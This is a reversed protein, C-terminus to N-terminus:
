ASYASLVSRLWPRSSSDGPSITTFSINADHALIDLEYLRGAVLRFTSQRNCNEDLGHEDRHM